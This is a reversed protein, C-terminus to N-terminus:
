VDEHDRFFHHMAQKRSTAITEVLRNRERRSLPTFAQALAANRQILEVQPMGVSALSVPLSLAYGLLKDAAAAGVLQEQGFVKM